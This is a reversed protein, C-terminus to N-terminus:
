TDGPTILAHFNLLGDMEPNATEGREPRNPRLSYKSGYSEELWSDIRDCIAKLKKDWENTKPHYM